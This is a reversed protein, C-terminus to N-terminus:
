KPTRRDGCLEGLGLHPTQQHALDLLRNDFTEDEAGNYRGAPVEPGHLRSLLVVGIEILGVVGVLSSRICNLSREWECAEM